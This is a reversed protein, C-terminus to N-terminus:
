SALISSPPYGFEKTFCRTFYKPDNFGVEYAIESINKSGPNELIERSVALRYTRIFQATPEGFAKQIRTNLLTKSMGLANCLTNVDLEPNKYYQRLTDLVKHQFAAMSNNADGEPALLLRRSALEENQRLLIDNQRRLEEATQEVLKKQEVIERTREAVTMELIQQRKQMTRMREKITWWLVILALSGVIIYFWVTHYFFPLVKVPLNLKSVTGGSIDSAEICFNYNGRPLSTYISEAVNGSSTRWEKDFGELRYRLKVKAGYDLFSFSFILSRNREHLTVAEPIPNHDTKGDIEIGSFRLPGRIDTWKGSKSADITSYGSSHGFYMMGDTGQCANNWYFRADYLGDEPFLPVISRSQPSFRNLGYETSIWIMGASDECFGRVRDNTLGQVTSFASFSFTGDEMCVAQYFGGGNSGIYMTGDSAEMICCIKEVIGSEPADLKYRYHEYSFHGDAKRDNLDFIFLGQLTGMWLRGKTDIVSGICGDALEACAVTIKGDSPTYTFIGNNTGIWLIDNGGDYELAGIYDPSHIHSIVRYPATASVVDIGGGWTGIYMYGKGDPRIASVSNHCLGGRERTLHFFSDKGDASINLGGEVTGVWLSGGPEQWIANVAGPALSAADTPNNVYDKINIIKPYLIKLGETETAVLLHSGHSKICNIVDRGVREFDDSVPNYVNLGYLTSALMLGDHTMALGTVFNQTLSRNDGAKNKYRKWEGTARYLQYLGNETSIWVRSDISLFDSLYTGVGFFVPAVQTATLGGSASISIKNLLGDLSVWVSGDRDVDEFVINNAEFSNHAFTRIDSPAGKEDFAIRYLMPSIALWVAGTADVTLYTCVSNDSGEFEPLNIHAKQLSKLDLVDIGGESGIWLRGFNDEAINKTFNSKLSPSSSYNFVIIKSGDFRCLGGGSTAVWLFGYSDVLMDDIFTCPMGQELDLSYSIYDDVM